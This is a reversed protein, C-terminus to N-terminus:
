TCIYAVCWHVVMCKTVMMCIVWCLGRQTGCLCSTVLLCFLLFVNADFFYFHFYFDVVTSMKKTVIFSPELWIPPEKGGEFYFAWVCSVNALKTCPRRRTWRRGVKRRVKWFVFGGAVAQRHRHSRDAAAAVRDSCDDDVGEVLIHRCRCEESCFARDGRNNFVNFCVGHM